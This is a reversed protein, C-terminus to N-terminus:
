PKPIRCCLPVNERGCTEAILVHAEMPDVLCSKIRENQNLLKQPSQLLFEKVSLHTFRLKTDEFIEVLSGCANLIQTRDALRIANPDFEEEGVETGYAYAMEDVTVPRKAMAVWMLVERRLEAAHQSRDLRLLMSEYMGNLGRPMNKLRAPIKKKDSIKLEELMLAAYRFMGDANQGVSSIIPEKFQQLLQDDTIENAIFDRIDSKVDMEVVSLGPANELEVSIQDEPRSTVLFRASSVAAAVHNTVLSYDICEDLADILVIVKFPVAHLMNTFLEWLKPVSRFTSSNDTNHGNKLVEILREKVERSAITSMVLQDVISAIMEATTSTKPDGNKFFFYLVQVGDLKQM